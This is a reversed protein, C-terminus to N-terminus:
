GVALQTLLAVNAAVVIAAGAWGLFTMWRPNASRGMTRRDSTLRLLPVIAFPLQLSLVVQSGVLLRGASGEGSVALVALAPVVALGRTLLRRQWPRLRLRVFGAMVVQGSMTGTITASQGAALLALAFVVAAATGLLPTLLRHADQLEVVDSLGARHFVAAALVLLASNLFMAGGLSLVTDVTAHRVAERKGPESRDFARAKVLSSHLYLNHPMVTAGLIGVAIYLMAPDRVVGATPLYGHLMEGLSPRSVALEFGFSAAVALVLGALL